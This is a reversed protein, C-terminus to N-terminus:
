RIQRLDALRKFSNRKGGHDLYGDYLQAEGKLVGRKATGIFLPFGPPHPHHSPVSFHRLGLMFLAEDWDWPSRSLALWRTVATLLTVIWATLREGPTLPVPAEGLSRWWEKM